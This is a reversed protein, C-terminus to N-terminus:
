SEFSRVEIAKNRQVLNDTEVCCDVGEPVCVDLCIKDREEKVHVKFVGSVSDFECNFEQMSEPLYPRIKAKRFGPEEPIIGAIGNYYWEVIHGMM